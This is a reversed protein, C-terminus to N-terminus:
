SAFSRCDHEMVVTVPALSPSPMMIITQYPQIKVCRLREGSEESYGGWRLLNKEV